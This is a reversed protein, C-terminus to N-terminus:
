AGDHGVLQADNIGVQDTATAARAKLPDALELCFCRGRLRGIDKPADAALGGGGPILVM